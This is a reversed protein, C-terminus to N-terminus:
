GGAEINKADIFLEDTFQATWGMGVRVTEVLPFDRRIYDAEAWWIAAEGGVGSIFTDVGSIVGERTMAIIGAAKSVVQPVEVVPTPPTFTQTQHDYTAGRVAGAGDVLNPLASLGDVVIINIVINSENLQAAIM